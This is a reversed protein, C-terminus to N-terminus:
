SQVSYTELLERFYIEMDTKAKSTPENKIIGSFSKFESFGLVYERYDVSDGTFFSIKKQDLLFTYLKSFFARNEVKTNNNKIHWFMQLGDDKFIQSEQGKQTSNSNPKKLEEIKEKCFNILNKTRYFKVWDKFNTYFSSEFDVKISSSTLYLEMFDSEWFLTDIMYDKWTPYFVHSNEIGMFLLFNSMCDENFNKWLDSHKQTLFNVKDQTNLFSNIESTITDYDFSFEIKIKKEITYNALSYIENYIQENLSYYNDNYRLTQGLEFKKIRKFDVLKLNELQRSNDTQYIDNDILFSLFDVKIHQNIDKLIGNFKLSLNDKYVQNLTVNLLIKYSYEPLNEM